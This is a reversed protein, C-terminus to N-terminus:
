PETVPTEGQRHRAALDVYRLSSDTHRALEEPSLTRVSKGPSGILAADEIVCGHLIARHGVTVDKGIRVSFQGGTGHVVALDQINTREGVTIPEVDGRLVAGYWVSAEAGLVVQGLVTANPAVFVGDGVEPTSGNYAQIM